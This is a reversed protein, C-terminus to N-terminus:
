LAMNQSIIVELGMPVSVQQMTAMLEKNSNVAEECQKELRSITGKAFSMKEQAVVVLVAFVILVLLRNM